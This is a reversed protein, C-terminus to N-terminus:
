RVKINNDFFINNIMDYSNFFFTIKFKFLITFNINEDFIEANTYAVMKVSRCDNIM